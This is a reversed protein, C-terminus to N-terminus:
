SWNSSTENNLEDIDSNQNEATDREQEKLLLVSPEIHVGLLVHFLFLLSHWSREVRRLLIINLIFILWYAQATYM